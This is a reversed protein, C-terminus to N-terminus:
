TRMTELLTNGAATIHKALAGVAAEIDGKRCFGVLREHGGLWRPTEEPLTRYAAVHTRCRNRLNRILEIQHNRGAPAYLTEHFFWDGEAWADTLADLNSKALAHEIRQLDDDTMRDMAHRLCNCELLARLDYIERVDDLTLQVVRAGRNPSITVLGLAALRRLADRVPIRSVAFRNALDVQVLETGPRIEGVLIEQELTATIIEETMERFDPKGKESQVNKAITYM